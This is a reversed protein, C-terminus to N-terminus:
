DAGGSSSGDRALKVRGSTDVGTLGVRPPRTAPEQIQFGFRLGVDYRRGERREGPGHPMRQETRTLACGLVIAARDRQSPPTPWVRRRVVVIDDWSTPEPLERRAEGYTTV